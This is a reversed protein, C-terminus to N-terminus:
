HRIRQLIARDSTLADSVLGSSGSRLAMAQTRGKINLKAKAIVLFIALGERGSLTDRWPTRLLLRRRNLSM